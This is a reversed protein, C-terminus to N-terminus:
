VRRITRLVIASIIVILVIPALEFAQATLLEVQDFAGSLAGTPAPLAGFIQGTILVAVALVIAVNIMAVIGERPDLMDGAADGSASM